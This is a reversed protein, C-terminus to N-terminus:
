FRESASAALPGQRGGAAGQQSKIPSRTTRPARSWFDLSFRHFAAADLDGAAPGRGLAGAPWGTVDRLRMNRGNVAHSHQNRCPSPHVSADWGKPGAAASPERRGASSM